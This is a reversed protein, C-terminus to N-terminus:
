RHDRGQPNILPVTAAAHVRAARDYDFDIVPQAETHRNLWAILTALIKM